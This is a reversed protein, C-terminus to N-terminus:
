VGRRDGLGRHPLGARHVDHLLGRRSARRRGLHRRSPAALLRDVDPDRGPARHTLRWRHGPRHPHPRLGARRADPAPHGHGPRGQGHRGPPRGLHPDAGPRRRRRLAPQQRHRRGRLGAGRRRTRRHPGWRSSHGRRRRRRSTRARGPLLHHLPTREG